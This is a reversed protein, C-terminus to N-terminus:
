WRDAALVKEFILYGQRDFDERCAAFTRGKLWPAAQEVTTPM